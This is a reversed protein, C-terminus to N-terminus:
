WGCRSLATTGRSNHFPEDHGSACNFPEIGGFAETENLRVVAAGIREDMDRSDFARAHAFEDFALLDAEFQLSIVLRTLHGGAIELSGLMRYGSEKSWPHVPMASLMIGVSTLCNAQGKKNGGYRAAQGPFGM